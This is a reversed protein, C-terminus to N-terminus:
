MKFKSVQIKNRQAAARHSETLQQLMTEVGVVFTELVDHHLPLLNVIRIIADACAGFRGLTLWGFKCEYFYDILIQGYLVLNKVLCSQYLYAQTTQVRM